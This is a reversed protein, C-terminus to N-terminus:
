SDGHSRQKQLHIALRRKKDRDEGGTWVGEASLVKMLERSKLKKVYNFIDEDISSVEEPEKDKFDIKNQEVESDLGLGIKYRVEDEDWLHDNTIIRSM